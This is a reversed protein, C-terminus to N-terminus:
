GTHSDLHPQPDGRGPQVSLAQGQGGDPGPDAVAIGRRRPRQRLRHRHAQRRETPRDAARRPHPRDKGPHFALGRGQRRHRGQDGPGQQRARSGERRARRRHRPRGHRDDEPQRLRRDPGPRHPHRPRGPATRLLPRRAGRAVQPGGPHAASRRAHRGHCRDGRRRVPAAGIPRRSQHHQDLAHYPSKRTRFPTPITRAWRWPPDLALQEVGERQPRHRHRRRHPSCSSFLHWADLM